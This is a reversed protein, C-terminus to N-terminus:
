SKTLANTALGVLVIAVLIPWFLLCYAMAERPRFKYDSSSLICAMDEALCEWFLSPSVTDAYRYDCLPPLTLACAVGAILYLMGIIIGSEIM